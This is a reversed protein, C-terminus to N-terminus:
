PACVSGITGGVQLPISGCKFGCPCPADLDPVFVDPPPAGPGCEPATDCDTFRCGNTCGEVAALFEHHACGAEAAWGACDSATYSRGSCASCQAESVKDECGAAVLALVLLGIQRM